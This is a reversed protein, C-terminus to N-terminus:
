NAKLLRGAVSNSAIEQQGVRCYGREDTAGRSSLEARVEARLKDKEVDNDELAKVDAESYGANRAHNELSKLFTYARVLRPAIDPCNRRIEDALGIAYFGQRIVPDQHLPPLAQATVQSVGGFAIMVGALFARM